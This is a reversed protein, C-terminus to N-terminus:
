VKTLHAPDDSEASGHQSTVPASRRHSKQAESAQAIPPTPRLIPEEAASRPPHHLLTCYHEWYGWCLDGIDPGSRVLPYQTALRIQNRHWILSFDTEPRTVQGPATKKRGYGSGRRVDGPKLFDMRAKDRRHCHQRVRTIVTVHM